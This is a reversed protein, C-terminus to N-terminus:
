MYIGMRYAVNQGAMGGANDWDTSPGAELWGLASGGVPLEPMPALAQSTGNTGKVIAGTGAAVLYLLVKCYQTASLDTLATCSCIDAIIATGAGPAKNYRRGEITFGLDQDNLPVTINVKGATTGNGLSYSGDVYSLLADVKNPVAYRPHPYMRGM